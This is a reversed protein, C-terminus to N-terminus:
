YRAVVPGGFKYNLGVRAIHGDNRITTNYGTGGGQGVLRPIVAVNLNSNDLDYYLYEAKVSWNPSFMHEIGGGVTYGTKTRRDQGFFQLVSGTAPPGFFSASNNVRAYAFGGTGYVMTQGFAYGIRGRVTGLYDIDTRYVNALPALAAPPVTVTGVTFSRDVDVYQIDTEFGYVWNPSLQWNYGMQAGGIFGDRDFRVSGPRAGGAVNAINAGVQGTTSINRDDATTYGVNGGIYFGTWNYIPEMMAPAKTYPRAAMDAALAPSVLLASLAVTALCFNKM